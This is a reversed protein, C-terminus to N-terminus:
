VNVEINLAGVMLGVTRIYTIMLKGKELLDGIYWGDIWSNTYIYQVFTFVSCKFQKGNINM